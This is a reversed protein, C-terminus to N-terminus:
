QGEAAYHRIMYTISACHAEIRVRWVSGPV